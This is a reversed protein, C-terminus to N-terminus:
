QWTPSQQGEVLHWMHPTRKPIYFVDGESAKFMTGGRISSGTAHGPRTEKRDVLQGGIQLTGGGEQVVFMDVEFEHLEPFGTHRSALLIGHTPASLLSKAAIGIAAERSNPVLESTTTASLESSSWFVTPREAANQAWVLATVGAVITVVLTTLIKM